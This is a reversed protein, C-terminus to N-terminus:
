TLRIRVCQVTRRLANEVTATDPHRFILYGAGEYGEPQAAGPQPLDAEVILSGFERRVEELGEIGAVRGTGMGRLYAAGVAFARAGVDLEDFIMMKPWASYFDTSHAHSILTTFQAGPPRAAVESIAVTGDPRRFWEMHTMGTVRGLAAIARPGVARIPAFQADDLERPLLVCWQIWPNEVVTLPSPRYASISHWLVDGDRLVCDFSFEEGRLFEEYLLPADARPPEAALVQELQELSDVRYTNRAGAGAPPKVVIPLAVEAVFARASAADRVLRSRACPVGAERFASKMVHKDRFRLAVDPDLGPLGLARAAQALPLQLQELSAILREVPGFRRSLERTADILQQPDFADRVRWHGVLRQRLAAPLRELPDQSVLSLRVGPLAAAGSVFRLTAAMFFPAVFVIHRM